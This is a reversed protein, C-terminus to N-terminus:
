DGIQKTIVSYENDWDLKRALGKRTWAELAVCGHEKAFDEVLPIYENWKEYDHGSKTALTIVRFIRKRPYNIIEGVTAMELQKDDVGVLLIQRQELLLELIDSSILEGSAHELAKNILPKVDHWVNPLDKPHIFYANKSM